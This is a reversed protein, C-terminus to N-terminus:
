VLKQVVLEISEKIERRIRIIETLDYFQSMINWNAEIVRNKDKTKM